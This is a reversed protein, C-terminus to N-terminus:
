SGVEVPTMVFLKTLELLAAEAEEFSAFSELRHSRVYGRIVADNSAIRFTGDGNDKVFVWFQSATEFVRQGYILNNKAYWEQVTM